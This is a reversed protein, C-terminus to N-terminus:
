GNRRRMWPIPTVPIGDDQLSKAESLNAEGWISRKDAEGEHIRRAEAAFERGVYDSSQEIRRRMEALAAEAASAPKTLDPAPASVSPAMVAKQVDTSGCVTCIIKGEACQADFTASDRFWADFQHGKECKLEYRIM